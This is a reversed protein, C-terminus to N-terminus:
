ILRDIDDQLAIGKWGRGARDKTKEYGRETLRRGLSQSTLPEDGNAKAWTKYTDYLVTSLCRETTGERCHDTIFGGLLDQDDRYETTAALVSEPTNLGDNIWSRCGDLAWNLIGPLENRLKDKLHDDRENEPITTTFPILRIRRWIGEDTGRIEPKHNTALWPTFQPQFEFFEARLFRATITDGGTLRKILPENLRRNEGIEVATVFRAGRLRAVDNPIGEKRDLFTEPPAQQGYDGLLNQITELFTSKGNAGAGYLILLIQETTLGTLSYGVARAVFERTEHDPLVRELFAQWVPATANPDHTVPAQKTILDSRRPRRAEGTRLNITTNTTNLLWPDADLQEPIIPIGPESRALALTGVVRNNREAAAIEKLRRNRDKDDEIEAAERILTRLTQKALHEATGTDDQAWRGGGWLLWKTWPHVHHLNEGHRSTLLEALALDTLQGHHYPTPTPGGPEDEIFAALDEDSITM